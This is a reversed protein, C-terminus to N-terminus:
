QIIISSKFLKMLVRNVTFDHRMEQAHSASSTWVEGLIKIMKHHISISRRYMSRRIALDSTCQQQESYTRSLGQKIGMIYNRISILSTFCISWLDVM